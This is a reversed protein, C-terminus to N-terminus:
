VTLIYEEWDDDPEFFNDKMIIMGKMCGPQPHVKKGNEDYLPKSWDPDADNSDDWNENAKPLSDVFREVKPLLSPPLKAIKEYLASVPEKLPQNIIEDDLYAPIEPHEIAYALREQYREEARMMVSAPMKTVDEIRAALEETLSIEARLLREITEVSTKMREALQVTELGMEDIKERLINGPSRITIYNPTHSLSQKRQRPGALVTSM